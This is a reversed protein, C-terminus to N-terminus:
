KPRSSRPRSTGQAARGSRPGPATATPKEEIWQPRGNANAAELGLALSFRAAQVMGSFDWNEDYEDSPQHYRGAGYRRVTESHDEMRSYFQTGGRLSLAVIGARAFPFHDSRFFGGSEPRPDPLVALEFRRAINEIRDYHSSREARALVIDRTAGVPHFSDLNLVMATGALPTVPNRVYHAAGLLGAEEGTTFLFIASRRPKVALSNWARAIEAVMACGTANDVAGNFIRDGDVHGAIGLHDWHATFIVSEGAAAPDSGDIRGIVNNASFTRIKSSIKGSMSLRLPVPRFGRKGAQEILTGADRGAISLLRSGAERTLWGTFPLGSRGKPQADERGWSNRVVNWGYGATADTHIILAAAAGHRAAEEFKYTWRGYYTLARGDFFVEDESPPENTVLVVVKGRVDTGAYDDWAYEPARIGHGVFIADGEFASEPQQTQTHGAFDDLWQFSVNGAQLTSQPDTTVGVL